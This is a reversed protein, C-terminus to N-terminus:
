CKWMTFIKTKYIIYLATIRLDGLFCNPIWPQTNTITFPMYLLRIKFMSAQFIENQTGCYKWYENLKVYYHIASKECPEATNEQLTGVSCRECVMRIIEVINLVNLSTSPCSNKYKVKTASLSKNETCSLYEEYYFFRCCKYFDLM